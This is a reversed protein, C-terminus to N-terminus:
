HCLAILLTFHKCNRVSVQVGSPDVCREIYICSMDLVDVHDWLHLGYQNIKLHPRDIRGIGADLDDVLTRCEVGRQVVLDDLKSM